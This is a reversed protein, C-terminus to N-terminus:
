NLNSEIFTRLESLTTNTDFEGTSTRGDSVRFKIRTLQQQQNQQQQNDPTNPETTTATTTM